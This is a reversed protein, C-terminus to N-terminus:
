KIWLTKFWKEMNQNNFVCFPTKFFEKFGKIKIILENRLENIKNSTIKKLM